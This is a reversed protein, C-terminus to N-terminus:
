GGALLAEFRPDGRLSDWEPEIRARALVFAPRAAASRALQDIAADRDGSLAWAAAAYYRTLADDAGLAERAAWAELAAALAAKAREHEGLSRLAAGARTRLEILIRGRLAHDLREVFALEGLYADRAEAYRGQLAALHGMRMWAGVIRIGQAGSMSTEQLAIARRAAAEGAAFDRLLARCHAMQLWYWGAQPNRAVAREFLEAAGAFDGRGLFRARALGGLMLPDDPALALAHELHRIGEEVRGAGVLALGLERWSRPHRPRRDLARRLLAIARENLEPSALHDAKQAYATGLELLARAYGPDAELAREFYLIGRDLSEYSDSRVNLLGKSLAEFAAVVRTEDGEHAAAVTGRLGSVLEAVIRDQIAFLEGVPGDARAARAVRGGDVEIVQGTLRVQEGLRQFSGCVMWRAGLMRGLRAAREAGLEGASGGLRRWADLVRDGGLIALGDIEQLAAALTEALATGLWEDEGHGTLNVIPAIAVAPPGGAVAAPASSRLRALEARVEAAGAPRAAPDKALLGLVLRELEAAAPAEFRRPLPPPERHLIADVVAAANAGEFPRRGALLEWLVVGFSFLDSRADLPRGLAQEPSLYHLTGGLEAAASVAWTASRTTADPAARPQDLALGFDLVKVRGQAVMLNSPKVDRHVVGRRHAEALADAAQAAIELIEDLGLAGEAALEALTRGPVYEMALISLPGDPGELEEIDYVVAINPHNLASAIRAERLLRRHDEDPCEERRRLTKLAVPRHLRLDEALWVEGM